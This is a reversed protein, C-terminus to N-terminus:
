NFSCVCADGGEDSISSSGLTSLKVLDLISRRGRFFTNGYIKEEKVHWTIFRTGYEIAEVLNKDSKKWCLECNGLRSDITLKFPELEYFLDLDELDVPNMFDTLLPAIRKKDAKLEAFTIRKPMDEKRYGIAKIYNVHGFVERCLSHSVRTKLYESCYPVGQNPVGTWKLKNLHAICESYVRGDMNLTEFTVEKHKVGVGPADSYVGEVLRLPIKWHEVMDKLFQITEPREQGTNCFIYLKNFDKYLPNTQIHRAMRISSRGGSVLIALDKSNEAKYKALCTKCNVELINSTHSSSKSIKVKVYCGKAATEPNIYHKKVSM